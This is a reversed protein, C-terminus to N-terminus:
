VEITGHTRVARDPQGMLYVKAAAHKKTDPYGQGPLVALKPYTSPYGLIYYSYTYIIMTGDFRWIM